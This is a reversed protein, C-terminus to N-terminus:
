TRENRFKLPQNFIFIKHYIHQLIHPKMPFDPRYYDSDEGYIVYYSRLGIGLEKLLFIRDGIELNM